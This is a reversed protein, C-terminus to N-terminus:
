EDVSGCTRRGCAPSPRNGVPDNRSPGSPYRLPVIAALLITCDIIIRLARTSVRRPDSQTLTLQTLSLDRRMDNLHKEEGM